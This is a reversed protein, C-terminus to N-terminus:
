NPSRRSRVWSTALELRALEVERIRRPDAASPACRATAARGALGAASVSQVTVAVRHGTARRIVLRRGRQTHLQNRGDNVRVHVRYRQARSAKSWTVVVQSGRRRLVLHSVRAPRRAGSAHFTAVRLTARVLGNEVVAAVITRRGAPGDTPTFRIRGHTATTSGVRRGVGKGREYFVLQQGRIPRAHFTLVRRYGRGHVSGTVKPDRLGGARRFRAVAPGAEVRLTWKGPPPHAIVLYGTSDDPYALGVSTPGIALGQDVTPSTYATGHPSILTFRPPGGAGVASFAVMRPHGHLRFTRTAGPALLASASGQVRWGGLDCSGAFPHPGPFDSWKVGFGVQGVPLERV